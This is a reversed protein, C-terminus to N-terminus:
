GRPQGQRKTAQLKKSTISTAFVSIAGTQTDSQPYGEIIFADEPDSAVAAVHNWQKQGIYVVYNTKTAQPVPVGKPLSPVKESSQMVGVICAGRVVTKGFKGILTIKVTTVTGKATGIDEIAAIHDEWPFARSEESMPKKQQSAGTPQKPRRKKGSKKTSRRLVKGEEPMGKHHALHLFIGGVTKRRSGDVAMM